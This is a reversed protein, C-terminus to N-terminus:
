TDSSKPHTRVIHVKYSNPFASTNRYGKSNTHESKSAIPEKIPTASQSERPNPDSSGAAAKSLASKWAQYCYLTGQQGAAQREGRAVHHIETTLSARRELAPGYNCSGNINKIRACRIASGPIISWLVSKCNKGPRRTPSDCLHSIRLIRM